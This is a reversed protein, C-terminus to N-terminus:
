GRDLFTLQEDPEGIHSTAGDDDCIMVGRDSGTYEEFGPEFEETDGDSVFVIRAYTGRYQVRDGARIQEGSLYCLTAEM